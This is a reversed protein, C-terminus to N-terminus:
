LPLRAACHAGDARGPDRHGPEAGGYERLEQAAADRQGASGHQGCDAGRGPKSAAARTKPLSRRTGGPCTRAAKCRLCCVSSCQAAWRSCCRLSRLAFIWVPERWFRFAPPLSPSLSGCCVRRWRWGAAAGALALLVAETLTQRILRGRSAGLASRVALERERAEGRAMLLECRQRLCDAAGGVGRGAADLGDLQVDQTERDRM